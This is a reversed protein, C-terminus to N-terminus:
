RNEYHVREKMKEILNSSYLRSCYIVKHSQRFSVLSVRTLGKQISFIQLTNAIASRSIRVFYAPLVSELEYLRMRTEYSESATHAFVREADTEFFLVEDLSLYYQSDGKFFTPTQDTKNMQSIQEAMAEFKPTVSKVRIVIEEPEDPGITEIRTKM